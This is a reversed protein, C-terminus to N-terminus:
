NSIYLEILLQVVSSVSVSLVKVNVLVPQCLTGGCM